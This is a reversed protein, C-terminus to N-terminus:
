AVAPHLCLQAQVKARDRDRYTESRVRSGKQKYIRCGAPPPLPTQQCVLSRIDVFLLNRRDSKLHLCVLTLPRRTTNPAGRIYGSLAQTCTQERITQIAAAFTDAGDPSCSAPHRGWPCISLPGASPSAKNPLCRAGPAVAPDAPPTDWLLLVCM